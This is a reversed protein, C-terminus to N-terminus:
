HQIRILFRFHTNAAENKLRIGIHKPDHTRQKFVEYNKNGGRKNNIKFSM